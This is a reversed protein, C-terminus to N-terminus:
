KKLMRMKQSLITIHSMEEKIIDDIKEKGAKEPVIDRVGLYFAVSNKEAAIAADLVEAM